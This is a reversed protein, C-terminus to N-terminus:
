EIVRPRDNTEKRAMNPTADAFLEEESGVKNSKNMKPM